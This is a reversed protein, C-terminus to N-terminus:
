PIPDLPVLRQGNYHFRVIRHGSPCCQGSGPGYVGYRLRVTTSTQDVYGLNANPQATDTGLYRVRAFFFARVNHGDASGKATAVLVRLTASPKYSRTSFPEYGHARVVAVASQLASSARAAPVSAVFVFLVV